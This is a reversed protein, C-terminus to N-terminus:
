SIAFIFDKSQKTITASKVGQSRSFKLVYAKGDGPVVTDGGAESFPYSTLDISEDPTFIVMPLDYSSVDLTKVPTACIIHTSPYLPGSESPHPIVTDSYIGDDAKVMVITSVYPADNYDMYYDSFILNNFSTDVNVTVSSYGSAGDDSAKYTKNETITKTVLIATGDEKDAFKSVGEAIDRSGTSDLHRNINNIQEAITRGNTDAGVKSALKKVSDLIAM